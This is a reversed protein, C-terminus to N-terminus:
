GEHQEQQKMIISDKKDFSKIKLIVSRIIDDSLGVMRKLEHMAKDTAIEFIMMVYHGKKSKKIPYALTRLGWYEEKLVNGGNDSIISKLKDNIKKIDSTAIDQRLIFPFEYLPM